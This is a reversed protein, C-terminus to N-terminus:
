WSTHNLIDFHIGVGVRVWGRGSVYVFYIIYKVVPLLPIELLIVYLLLHCFCSSYHATRDGQTLITTQESDEDLQPYAAALFRRISSAIGPIFHWVRSVEVDLKPATIAIKLRIKKKKSTHTNTKNENVYHKTYWPTFSVFSHDTPFFSM